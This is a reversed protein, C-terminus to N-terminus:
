VICTLTYAYEMKTNKKKKKKRQIARPSHKQFAQKIFRTDRNFAYSKRKTNQSMSHELTLALPSLSCLAYKAILQNIAYWVCM